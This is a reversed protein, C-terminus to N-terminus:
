NAIPQPAASHGSPPSLFIPQTTSPVWGHQGNPFIAYQMGPPPNGLDVSSHRSSKGQVQLPSPIFVPSTQYVVASNATSNTSQQSPKSGHKNSNDHSGFRDVQKQKGSKRNRSKRKGDSQRDSHNKLNDSQKNHSPHKSAPNNIPEDRSRKQGVIDHSNKFHNNASPGYHNGKAKPDNSYFAAQNATLTSTDTIDDDRDFSMEDAHKCMDTMNSITCPVHQSTMHNYIIQRYKSRLGSYVRYGQEDPPISKGLNTLETAAKEFRTCYDKCSESSHQHFTILKEYRIEIERPSLSFADNVVKWWLVVDPFPFMPVNTTKVKIRSNKSGAKFLYGHVMRYLQQVNEREEISALACYEPQIFLMGPVYGPLHEVFQFLENQWDQFQLLTCNDELIPPGNKTFNENQKRIRNLTEPQMQVRISRLQKIPDINGFRPNSVSRIPLGHKFISSNIRLMSDNAKNNHTPSPPDRTRFSYESSARGPSNPSTLGGHYSWQSRVDALSYYDEFPSYPRSATESGPQNIRGTPPIGFQSVNHFRQFAVTEQGAVIPDIAASTNLGLTAGSSASLNNVQLGSAPTNEGGNYIDNNVNM